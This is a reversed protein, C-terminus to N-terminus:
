SVRAVNASRRPIGTHEFCIRALEAVGDRIDQKSPLAFCLRMYSKAEPGSCSWDAGPNFSIGADAAAKHFSRTDVEDPLKLWLFLGGEPAWLEAATGFERQLANVLTELKGELTKSLTKIHAGFHKRFYEATVMQDLAGTGGDTKCAIMQSLVPWGAAVYGVRLAPALSKSFSGIHIVQSSDLGYLAPPGAGAWIIDAYCEDEFIAVGFERAIGLLEHRRELSLVTGTPNQITPITYIYKPTVGKNKLDQLVSRLANMDIGGGDLPAGVYNVELRQLKGFVASYTFEELLVTDGPELLIQNVLDIGQLSGATILVDEPGCPVGRRSALKEAVFQRLPEYGLPSQGLNYMALKPAEQRIIAAAASALEESPM